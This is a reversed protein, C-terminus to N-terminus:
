EGNIKTKLAPGPIFQIRETAHTLIKKGSPLTVERVKREKHRFRGFHTITVDGKDMAEKLLTLLTNVHEETEPRSMGGHDAYMQDIIDKKIM